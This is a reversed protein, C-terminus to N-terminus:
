ARGGIWDAPTGFTLGRSKADAIVEPLVATAYPQDDHMLLVDGAALPTVKLKERVEDANGCDCDRPDVNWLVVTKGGRWLRLFKKATLKGWPPRFLRVPRGLIDSFLADTQRIEDMLQAPSMLGPKSHHYTHHGIVHGEAAIRRVIEPHERVNKGILFFTARVGHSKLMDLLPPTYIPHPGDDFTLSVINGAKPGHIMFLRRPLAVSMVGRALQRLGNKRASHGAPPSTTLPQAPASAM